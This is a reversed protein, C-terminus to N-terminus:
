YDNNEEMREKVYNIMSQITPFASFLLKEDEFEIDFESELLVIIKIFTISDINLEELSIESSHIELLINKKLSEFVKDEISM